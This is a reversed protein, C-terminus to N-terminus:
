SQALKTASEPEAKIDAPQAPKELKPVKKGVRKRLHPHDDLFEEQVDVYKSVPEQVDFGDDVDFDNAEEYTEFGQADAVKSLETRLVRAIQQQLSLVTHDEAVFLRTSDVIEEGRSGLKNAASLVSQAEVQYNKKM